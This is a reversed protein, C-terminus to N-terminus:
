RPDNPSTTPKFLHPSELRIRRWDDRRSTWSSLKEYCAVGAVYFFLLIVPYTDQVWSDWHWFEVDRETVNPHNAGRKDSETETKIAGLPEVSAPRPERNYASNGFDPVVNFRRIVDFRGVGAANSKELRLYESCQGQKPTSFLILSALCPLSVPCQVKILKWLEQKYLFDKRFWGGFLTHAQSKLCQHVRELSVLVWARVFRHLRGAVQGRDIAPKHEPRETQNLPRSMKPREPQM